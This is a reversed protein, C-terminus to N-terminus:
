SLDWELVFVLVSQDEKRSTVPLKYGIRYSLASLWQEEPHPALWFGWGIEVITGEDDDVLADVITTGLVEFVPKFLGDFYAQAFAVNWLFAKERTESLGMESATEREDDDLRIQETYGLQLQALLDPLQEVITFYRGPLLSVEWAGDGGIGKSRDGTPADVAARVSLFDLIQGTDCCVLLQAAFEIDSLDAETSGHDPVSIGLPIEVGIELSKWVIWELGAAVEIEDSDSEKSWETGLEASHDLFARETFLPEIPEFRGTRASAPTAFLLMGIVALVIGVGNKLM